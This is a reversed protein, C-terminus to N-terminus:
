SGPLHSHIGPTGFSFALSIVKVGSGLYIRKVCVNLIAVLFHGFAIKSFAQLIVAYLRTLFKTSIAGDQVTESIFANKRIKHLFELHGGFHHSFLKQLFTASSEAYVRHALFNTLIATDRVTESIFANKCIVYFNLIAM